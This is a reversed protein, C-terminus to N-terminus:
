EAKVGTVKVVHEWKDEEARLFATTEQPGGSLPQAYLNEIVRQVDPQLTIEAIAGSLRSVVEAPTNAPAVVMYTAEVDFGRLGAEDLTPINPLFKSRKKGTVALARLRGSEVLPAATSISGFMLDLSGGMLDVEAQVIGRYSVHTMNIGAMVKFLEGALHISTGVGTSGFTLPAQRASKVLDDVSNLKSAVPVVLLNPTSAILAVPALNRKWDYPNRKLAANVAIYNAAMVLTYGDAPAKAVVDVAINGGAGARNDVVFSQGLKQTLKSAYLRALQDTAGGPNFGVLLKVPKVPYAGAANAVSACALALAGIWQWITM